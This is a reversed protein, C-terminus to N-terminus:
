KRPVIHVSDTGTITTGDRLKASLTLETSSPTVQLDQTRFHLILDAVGDSNIDKNTFKV